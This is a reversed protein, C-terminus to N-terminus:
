KATRQFLDSWQDIIGDNGLYTEVAQRARSILDGQPNTAVDIIANVAEDPGDVLHALQGGGTMERWGARKDAVIPVGSAMAELGVRPWNEDARGSQYLCDLSGMFEAADVSSPEHLEIWAPPQGLKRALLPRWGLIKVRVWGGVQQRIRECVEWLDPQFKEVAARSIRGITFEGNPSAARPQYLSADFAGRIRVIRDALGHQALQPELVGRQHESQCVIADPAWGQAYRRQERPSLWNMCPVWVTPNKGIRVLRKLVPWFQGNCFSVVPVGPEPNFGKITTQSIRCGIAEVRSKWPEPASWTPTLTVEAGASRWLRITHWLETSAGGVNAPFGLVHIKM